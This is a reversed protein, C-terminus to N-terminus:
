RLRLRLHENRRPPLAFKDIICWDLHQTVLAAVLPVLYIRASSPKSIPWAPLSWISRCSTLGYGTSTLTVLSFYVLASFMAADRGPPLRFEKQVHSLFDWLLWYM